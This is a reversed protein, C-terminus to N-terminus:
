YGTIYVKLATIGSERCGTSWVHLSGLGTVLELQNLQIHM